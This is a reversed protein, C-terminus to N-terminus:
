EDGKGRRANQVLAYAIYTLISAAVVMAMQFWYFFPFGWLEPASRAYLPVILLVVVPVALLVLAAVAVGVPLPRRGPRPDPAPERLDSM